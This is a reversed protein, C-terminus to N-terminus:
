LSLLGRYRESAYQLAEPDQAIAIGVIEDDDEFEEPINRIGYGGKIAEYALDRSTDRLRQSIKRYNWPNRRIMDLATAENDM